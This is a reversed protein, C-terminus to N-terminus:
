RPQERRGPVESDLTGSWMLTMFEADNERDRGVLGIARFGPIRREEIGPIVQGRAVSQYAGANQKTTRGPRARCTM